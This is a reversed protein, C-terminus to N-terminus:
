APPVGHTAACLVVRANYADYAPDSYWTRREDSLVVRFMPTSSAPPYASAADCSENQAPVVHTIVIM